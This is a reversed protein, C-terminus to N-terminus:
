IGGKERRPFIKGMKVIGDESISLEKKDNM